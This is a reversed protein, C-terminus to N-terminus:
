SRRIYEQLLCTPADSRLAIEGANEWDSQDFPPFFTDADPVNIDVKTILLRHALPLMERYIGAGGVGYIRAIGRKAAFVIADAVTPVVIEAADPGSSVVINLRKPLPRIPLSDWTNRGMIIAGGITERQFFKLDEPASWPIGGDRGIAGNQATAAILTIM